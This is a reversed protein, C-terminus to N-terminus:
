DMESPAVVPSDRSPSPSPPASAPLPRVTDARALFEKAADEVIKALGPQIQDAAQMTSELVPVVKEQMEAEVAKVTSEMKEELVKLAGAPVDLYGSLVEPSRVVLSLASLDQLVVPIAVNAVSRCCLTLLRAVVSPSSLSAPTTM